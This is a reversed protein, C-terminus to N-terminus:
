ELDFDTCIACPGVIVDDTNPYMRLYAQTAKLNIKLGKLKGEEDIVAECTRDKFKVRIVELLADDVWEKMESYSPNKDYTLTDEQGEPHILKVTPV